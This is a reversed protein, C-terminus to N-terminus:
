KEKQLTVKVARDADLGLPIQQTKYGPASIEVSYNGPALEFVRTSDGAERGNIKVTATDPKFNKGGEVAFIVRVPAVAPRFMSDPGPKAREALDEAAQEVASTMLNQFKNHDVSTVNPRQQERYTGTYVNGYCVSQANLDVVKLILDLQYTTSATAVGYGKFSDQRSRLDSVTGYILHTAGSEEALKRMFDKPFDSETALKKMAEAVLQPSVPAFLNNNKALRATLYEAGLVVPRSEGKVVTNYLELTKAYNRENDQIQSIRNAANTASNDSADIMRVYGQMISNMTQHDAMNLTSERPIDIKKNEHNLFRKQGETDATTFDLVAVRIKPTPAAQQSYAAASLLLMASLALFKM